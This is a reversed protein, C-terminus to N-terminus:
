KGDVEDENALMNPIGNRIPFVRGSEPCKLEGETIEVGVLLRHMLKLFPEDAQWDDNLQEPLGEAEGVSAAASRLAAYDLKPLMRKVFTENYECDTVEKATATLLLPYGTTVGKLFASTLINHTMLKMAFIISSGLSERRILSFV